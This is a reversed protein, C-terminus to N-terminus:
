DKMAYIVHNQRILVKELLIDLFFFHYHFKCSSFKTDYFKMKKFIKKNMKYLNEQAPNQKIRTYM